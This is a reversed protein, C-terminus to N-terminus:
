LSVSPATLSYDELWDAAMLAFDEFDTICDRNFDSLDFVTETSVAVAAACSDDYVDITFSGETTGAGDLTVALTITVVAADDTDGDKTITITADEPDTVGDVVEVTYGAPADDTWAYELTRGQIDNDIVTANITVPEGSWAIWDGGVEVDPLNPDVNADVVTLVESLVYLSKSDVNDRQFRNWVRGSNNANANGHSTRVESPTDGAANVHSGFGGTWVDVGHVDATDGLGYQDLFPSYHVSQSATVPDGDSNNNTSGSALRLTTDGDFPNSWGNYIDANNRAISTTGDMAYVPVGAGGIGAGGTLDGTGSRDLPSSIPGVGQEQTGDTNVWLMATWGSSAALAANQQAQATAFADYVGPDNSTANIKGDTHFALRYTDGAAWAVGTNPNIGGNATLDLIGLEGVVEVASSASALLAIMVVAITLVTKIRNRVEM